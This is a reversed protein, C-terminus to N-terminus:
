VLYKYSIFSNYYLFVLAKLKKKAAGGEETQFHLIISPSPGRLMLLIVATTCTEIQLRLLIPFMQVLVTGFLLLLLLFFVVTLYLSIGGSASM